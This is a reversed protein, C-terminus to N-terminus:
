PSRWTIRQLFHGGSTVNATLHLPSYAQVQLSALGGCRRKLCRVHACLTVLEIATTPLRIQYAGGMGGIGIYVYVFFHPLMINEFNRHKKIVKKLTKPIKPGPNPNGLSKEVIQAIKRGLLDRPPSKQALVFNPFKQSQYGGM